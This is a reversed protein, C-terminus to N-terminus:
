RGDLPQEDEINYFWKSRPSMLTEPKIRGYLNNLGEYGVINECDIISLEEVSDLMSVDIIGKCSKLTLIKAQKIVNLVEKNIIINDFSIKRVNHIDALTVETRISLNLHYINKLNKIDFEVKRDSFISFESVNEIGEIHFLGECNQLHLYNMNQLMSVDTVNACSCLSFSYLKNYGTLDRIKLGYYKWSQDKRGSPMPFSQIAECMCVDLHKINDLMSIDTVERCRHLELSELNEYGFLNSISLDNLQWYQNHKSPTPYLDIGGCKIITLREVDSLCSIDRPSKCYEFKVECVSKLVELNLYECNLYSLKIRLNNNFRPLKLSKPIVCKNLVISKANVLNALDGIALDDCRHFEVTQIGEMRGNEITENNNIFIIRRLKSGYCGRLKSNGSANFQVLEIGQLENLSKTKHIEDKRSAVEQPHNAFYSKDNLEDLNEIEHQENVRLRHLKYLENVSCLDVTTYSLSLFKKMLHPYKEFLKDRKIERFVNMKIEEGDRYDIYIYEICAGYQSIFELDVSGHWPHLQYYFKRRKVETISDVEEYGLMKMITNRYTIDTLFRAASENRTTRFSFTRIEKLLPLWTKCLAFLRYKEKQSLHDSAISTLLIEDPLSCITPLMALKM